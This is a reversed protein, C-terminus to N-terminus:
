FSLESNSNLSIESSHLPLLDEALLSVIVKAVAVSSLTDKFLDEDNGLIDRSMPTDVLSPTVVNLVGMKNTMLYKAFYRCTCLQSTKSLAYLYGSHPSTRKASKSSIVLARLYSDSFSQNHKIVLTLINHLSVTSVVISEHIDRDSTKLLDVRPYRPSACFILADIPSFKNDRLLPPFQMFNSNLDFQICEFNNHSIPVVSRSISIVYYGVKLLENVVERGIGSSGGVILATKIQSNIM